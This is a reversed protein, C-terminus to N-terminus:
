RSAETPSKVEAPPMGCVMAHERGDAPDPPLVDVVMAANVPRYRLNCTSANVYLTTGDTTVGSGEHIHGFAHMAPRIRSQIEDLLDVCGARMQSSCLDGHGLPPGHTLLVDTDSPILRWKARCPEGRPLNFAWDCFEPQWPSGWIKIGEVLTGTDDLYECNPIAEILARAKACTQEPSGLDEPRHGFRPATQAFSAADMSLDHNGAIIIKRKHPLAGFWQAFSQVEELKGVNTFDGCHLLVDGDPIEELATKIAMKKSEYSHTDSIIIFRVAGAPKPCDATFAEGDSLQPPVGQTAQTIEWAKTPNDALQLALKPMPKPPM